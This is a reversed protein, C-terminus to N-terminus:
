EEMNNVFDKPLKGFQKQFCKTFYSPNNFGVKYCVENVRYTGECLLETAKKLRMSQMLKSPTVGAIQKIKAFLGSSSIGIEKAMDDVLFDGNEINEEIIENLRLLFEEDAKNGAITKISAYPTRSFKQFLQRRSELLNRVRTLLYSVHLPKELYADAGIEFAEIKSDVNTKATLMIIPIHSWLFNQKVNKCFEIGDMNPMMMDTIIIDIPHNELIEMGGRGDNATHVIYDNLFQKRIFMQMDHDDEVILMSQKEDDGLCPPPIKSEGTEAKPHSTILQTETLSYEPLCEVSNVGGKPFILSIAFGKGYESQIEIKGDLVDVISKVLYLGLGTGSFRHGPVQYFPKFIHETESESLGNGNDKVTIVYYDAHSRCDLKLAIQDKTHKSANSLLNSVAKTLNETDTTTEFDYDDCTYEFFVKKHEIFPKFRNYTEVLLQHINYTSLSIRIGGKEIKSFDLLQNVLTLLRHSNNRMINLNERTSDPITESGSEEIVQELPAIILNLPTRVEHAVNTFFEIKSRYAEKEQESRIKAIQEENKITDKKRLYLLLLRIAAIFLLIYLLFAWINWWIPPSIVIPFSYGDSNWVGDNNSAKIRFTYNGPPINTYTARREKGADNWEKDFGELIFAYQNKEPAFFSLATFGFSFSNKKYSLTMVPRDQKDWKTFDKIDTPKNFLQFDTVSVLPAHTNKPIQKPFFANFGNPTGLYIRGSSSKFGSNPTFLDSLLGDSKTFQRYEKSSPTYSVLGKLTAIWLTENEAFIKCIYNSQFQVKEDIFRDNEEDYWCLGHNTGIWLQGSEDLCLSIVDNSILSHADEPDFLYETWSGTKLDFKQLGKNTTAFWLHHKRQLIDIVIEDLPRIRTFNDNERNYFNIGTTTGIWINQLSDRYIAYINNADLSHEDDTDSFYHKIKKTKLNMVNLGGSYTGIWLNDNDHLLSHVNDFSLSNGDDKRTYSQFIGTKMNLENLGGDETGIWINGQPDEAFCSVVNGTISNEDRIHTYSSFYNRNPSAYNIGGYYTGIWLGGERDKYIPYVFRNSLMPELFHQDLRNGSVPSIKFSTLGTNSGILLTGPEYETMKHIHLIKDKGPTNLYRGTITGKNKDVSILGNTWTGFWMTGFVDELMSYARLVKMDKIPLNPLAPIFSGNGKDLKYIQHHTNDVSAWLADDGDKYISTVWISENTDTKYEDFSHLSLKDNEYLFVGQRASAIWIKENSILLNQIRGSVQIDGETSTIFPDFRDNKLDYICVGRETGVWIVQHGDEALCYVSNNILSHRNRPINRYNTFTYGDFRNLGNETGFWMFGKSDQLATYVTNSSLGDESKYYKFNLEVPFSDLSFLIFLFVFSIRSDVLKM